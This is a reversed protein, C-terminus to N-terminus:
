SKHWHKEIVALLKPCQTEPTFLATDRARLIEGIHRRRAPDESLAVVAKAMADIDLYPVVHGGDSGVLEETGGSGAFCVLPIGLAAAELAVMPFADERSTLTFVDLASLYDHPNPVSTVLRLSQELGLLSRDHLMQQHVHSDEEVGIWLFVHRKSPRLLPVAKAVLLFIDCGKRWHAVGCMGVVIDSEAIGLQARIKKRALAQAERSLGFPQGFPHIVTIKEAPVRLTERLDRGVIESVAIFGDTVGAAKVAPPGGLTEISFRMEHAHCLTRHGLRSFISVYEGNTVTNSYVLPFKERPYLEKLQQALPPNLDYKRRLRPLFAIEGNSILGRQLVSTPALAQFDALVDGGDRLLIEFEIESNNKLWKLFHWLVLPAGTRSAQHGVFLIKKRSSSSSKM